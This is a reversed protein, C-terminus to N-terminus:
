TYASRPGAFRLDVHDEHVEYVVAWAPRPEEGPGEAVHLHVLGGTASHLSQFEVEDPVHFDEGDASLARFEDQGTELGTLVAEVAAALRSDGDSAFLHDIRDLDEDRYHVLRTM